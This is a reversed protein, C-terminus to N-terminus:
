PAPALPDQPQGPMMPAGELEVPMDEPPALPADPEADQLMALIEQTRPQDSNIALSEEFASIAEELAGTNILLSGLFNWRVYDGPDLQLSRRLPLLSQHLRGVRFLLRAHAAHADADHPLPFRGSKLREVGQELLQFEKPPIEVLADLRQATEMVDGEWLAVAALGALVRPHEDTLEAGSEYAGRALATVGGRLYVGGLGSWANTAKNPEPELALCAAYADAAEARWRPGLESLAEGLALWGDVDEPYLRTLRRLVEASLDPHDQLALVTAYQMLTDRDRSEGANAEELLVRAEELHEFLRQGLEAATEWDGEQQANVYAAQTEHLAELKEQISAGAAGSWIGAAGLCCLVALQMWM